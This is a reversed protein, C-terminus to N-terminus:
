AAVPSEGGDTSPKDRVEMGPSDNRAVFEALEKGTFFMPVVNTLEGKGYFSRVQAEERAREVTFKRKIAFFDRSDAEYSSILQLKALVTQFGFMDFELQREVADGDTETIITYHEGYKKVFFDYLAQKGIKLYTRRPQAFSCIAAMFELVDIQVQDYGIIGGLNDYISRRSRGFRHQYQPWELLGFLYLRGKMTPVYRILNRSTQSAALAAGATEIVVEEILNQWYLYSFARDIAEDNHGLDNLVRKFSADYRDQFVAVAELTNQLLSNGNQLDNKTAPISTQAHMDIIRWKEADHGLPPNMRPPVALINLLKERGLRVGDGAELLTSTDPDQFIAELVQQAIQLAVRIDGNSMQAIFNEQRITFPYRITPLAGDYTGHQRVYRVFANKAKRSDILRTFFNKQSEVHLILGLRRAVISRVGLPLIKVTDTRKHFALKPRCSLLYDVEKLAPPRCAYIVLVNPADLFRSLHELIERQLPAECYDIDDVYLILLDTLAGSTGLDLIHQVLECYKDLTSGSTELHHCPHRNGLATAFSSIFSQRFDDIGNGRVAVQTRCDVHLVVHSKWRPSPRAAALLRDIRAHDELVARRLFTTKGVGPQGVVILSKGTAACDQFHSYFASEVHNRKVYFYDQVDPPYEQLERFSYRIIDGPLLVQSAYKDEM